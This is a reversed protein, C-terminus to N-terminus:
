ALMMFCIAALLVAEYEARAISAVRSAALRAVAVQLLGAGVDAGHEPRPEPCHRALGDGHEVRNAVM